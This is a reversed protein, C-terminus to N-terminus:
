PRKPALALLRGVRVAHHGAWGRDPHERDAALVVHQETAIQWDAWALTAIHPGSAQHRAPRPDA